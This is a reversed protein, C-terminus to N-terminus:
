RNIWRVDLVRSTMVDDEISRGLAHTLQESTMREMLVVLMRPWDADEPTDDDTAELALMEAEDLSGATLYVEAYVPGSEASEHKRVVCRWSTVGLAEGADNVNSERDINLRLAWEDSFEEVLEDPTLLEPREPPCLLVSRHEHGVGDACRTEAVEQLDFAKLTEEVQERLTTEARVTLRKHEDIYIYLFPEDSMLGFGVLGDEFLWGGHRRVLEIFRDFGVPDYAIYPDVERFADNGLVDLIPYVRGPMLSWLARALMSLRTATVVIEYVYRDPWEELEGPEEGGDSPEFQVTFGEAPQMEEIPYVGLPFAFEGITKRQVANDLMSYPM